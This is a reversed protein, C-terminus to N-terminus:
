DSVGIYWMVREQVGWVDGIVFRTGVFGWGGILLVRVM